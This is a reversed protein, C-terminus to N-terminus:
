GEDGGGGPGAQPQPEEGAEAAEQPAPDDGVGSPQAAEPANSGAPAMQAPADTATEPAPLARLRRLAQWPGSIDPLVVELGQAQLMAIQAAANQVGADGTEYYGDLTAAARQLSSQWGQQDDRLLSLRASEYQLWLGQRLYDQDELSFLPEQEARRRVTVLSGLTAKIRAWLGPEEGPGAVISAEETLEGERGKMPLRPVQAQLHDLTQTLAVRDIGPVAALDLQAAAISQRVPLYFPDDLAALRSDALSLAQQAGANDRFLVLRESAVRLLFAVEAMDMHKDGPEGRVALAALADDAIDLRRSLVQLAEGQTALQRRLDEGTGPRNSLAQLDQELAELRDGLRESELSRLRQEIDQWRGEDQGARRALDQEAQARWQALDADDRGQWWQWAEWGALSLALLLALAGLGSGKRQKRSPAFPDFEDEGSRAGVPKLDDDSNM